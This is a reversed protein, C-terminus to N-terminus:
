RKHVRKQKDTIQGLYKNHIWGHCERCLTILNNPHNSGKPLPVIHHVHLLKTFPPPYYGKCTKNAIKSIQCTYNDRRKVYASRKDWDEGYLENTVTVRKSKTALQRGKVFKPRFNPRNVTRKRVVSKLQNQKLLRLM